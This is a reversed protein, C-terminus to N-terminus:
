PLGLLERLQDPVRLFRNSQLYEKVEGMKALDWLESNELGMM